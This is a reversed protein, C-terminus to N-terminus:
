SSALSASRSRRRAPAVLDDDARQPLEDQGAARSTSTRWSSCGPARRRARARADRGLHALARDLDLAVEEVRTDHVGHEVADVSPPAVELDLGKLGAEAV